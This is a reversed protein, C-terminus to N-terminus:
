RRRTAKRSKELSLQVDKSSGNKGEKAGLHGPFRCTHFEDRPSRQECRAPAPKPTLNPLLQLSALHRKGM